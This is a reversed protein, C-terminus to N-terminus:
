TGGPQLVREWLVRFHVWPVGFAFPASTAGLSQLWEGPAFEVVRLPQVQALDIPLDIGAIANRQLGPVAAIAADQLSLAAIAQEWTDFWAQYAAPLGREDSRAVVSSLSPASGAGGEIRTVIRDREVDHRFREAVHSPLADSFCRTGVAYATSDFVNALFLVTPQAPAVGDITEVYLRWNSQLPSPCIGRWQGLFAPGFHKHAYTLVTLIAHGGREAIRVGDPVLPRVRELLVVWNLYVVDHVDSEQRLFPLRAFVARRLRALARQNALWDFLRAVPGWGPHRFRM